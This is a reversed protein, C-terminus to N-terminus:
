NRAVLALVKMIAVFGTEIRKMAQKASALDNVSDVNIRNRVFTEIQEATATKLQTLFEQRDEADKFTLRRVREATKITKLIEHRQADLDRQAEEAPTLDVFVLEGTERSIVSKQAM